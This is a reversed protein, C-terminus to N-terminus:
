ANGLRRRWGGLLRRLPALPGPRLRRLVARVERLAQADIAVTDPWVLARRDDLAAGQGHIAAVGAGHTGSGDAGRNHLLSVRPFLTLGDRGFVSLLWRIGWSDIHGGVQQRLMDFYPYAGGLDFRRRLARDNRLREFGGAARDYHRWARAWTAWGWTSILPLFLADAPTQFHGPFQYGTVQMVHEDDAYQDLAANLFRLFGPMVVLDDELVIVRGHAECLETVGQEISRALGLNYAREVVRVSAFGSLGALLARVQAVAAADAPNRAGDSYIVLESAAALPDARLAELTAQLHQPRRYAFLAIPALSM